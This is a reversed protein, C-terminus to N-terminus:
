MYGKGVDNVGDLEHRYASALDDSFRLRRFASKLYQVRRVVVRRVGEFISEGVRFDPDCYYCYYDVEKTEKIMVEIFMQRM